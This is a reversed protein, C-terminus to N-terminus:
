YPPAATDAPPAKHDRSFDFVAVVNLSKHDADGYGAGYGGRRGGTGQFDSVGVQVAGNSGLPGSATAYGGYGRNGYEAGVEGHIRGDVLTRAIPPADYPIVVLPGGLGEAWPSAAGLGARSSPLIVPGTAPPADRTWADIQDATSLEDGRDRATAVPQAAAAGAGTLVLVACLALAPRNMVRVGNRAAPQATFLAIM